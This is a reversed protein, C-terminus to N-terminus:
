SGPGSVPLVSQPLLGIALLALSGAMVSVIMYPFKHYGGIPLMDSVLGVVPKLAWPLQTIGSFINMQPGPVSYRM